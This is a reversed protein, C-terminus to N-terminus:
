DNKDSKFVIDITIATALIALKIQDNAYKPDITVNYKDATTFLEQALGAWKKNITGIQIDYSNKMIFNWARWNGTIQAILDGSRNFIKFTPKFLHFEQQITAIINGKSDYIQARSLFFTWGRSITAEIENNANIIELNFPLMSKKMVLRLLKQQTTLKQNVSGVVVGRDNYIKYANNLYFIKVKEDIFYSNTAFFNSEM